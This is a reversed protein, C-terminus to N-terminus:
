DYRRRDSELLAATRNRQEDNMEQLLGPLFQPDIENLLGFFSQGAAMKGTNHATTLANTTFPNLAMGCVGYLFRMLCRLDPSSRLEALARGYAERDKQEYLQHTRELPDRSM